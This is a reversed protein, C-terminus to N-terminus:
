GKPLLAEVRGCSMHNQGVEAEPTRTSHPDVSCIFRVYRGGVEDGVVFFRTTMIVVILLRSGGVM